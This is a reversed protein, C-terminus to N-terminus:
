EWSHEEYSKKKELLLRCVLDFRSRSNLRTSKRDGAGLGCFSGPGPRHRPGDRDAVGWGGARGRVPAVDVQVRPYLGTTNVRFTSRFLTTYPLRACTRPRLLATYLRTVALRPVMSVS